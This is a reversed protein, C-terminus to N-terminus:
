RSTITFSRASSEFADTRRALEDPLTTYTLTYGTGREFLIYQLVTVPFGTESHEYSFRMAEGAPLSVEESEVDGGPVLLALQERSVDFYQERTVDAPPTDVVVNLNTPLEPDSEPDLAMFKVLSDEGAIAELYPRLKANDGLEEEIEEQTPREDASLATWSPPVGISFGESRVEYQTLADSEGVKQPNDASDGGGCGAFLLVVLLVGVTRLYVSCM